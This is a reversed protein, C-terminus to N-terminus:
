YLDYVVNTLSSPVTFAFIGPSGEEPTVMGYINERAGLGGGFCEYTSICLMVVDGRTIVPAAEDVSGDEDNLVIFGFEENTENWLGTGFVNGDADLSDNSNWTASLNWSLLVKTTGDSLEIITQGLDVDKSGARAKVTLTINVVQRTTTDVKGEIDIVALGTSVEATTQQGTTMATIELRNATQVLVSAAIGAVLVMAIFVIMAGIGMDGADQTKLMKCINKMKKM